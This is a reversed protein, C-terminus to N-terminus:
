SSMSFEKLQYEGAPLNNYIWQNNRRIPSYEKGSNLHLLQHRASSKLSIHFNPFRGTYTIKLKESEQLTTHDRNEIYQAVEDCTAHWIDAGRMIDYIRELSGLDTFVNPRQLHGKVKQTTFHEQISILRGKGYLYEIYGEMQVNRFQQFWPKAWQLKKKGTQLFTKFSEGSLNTPMDLIKKESGLYRFQNSPSKKNKMENGWAWWLFGLKQIISLAEENKEYGPFKGGQFRIGTHHEFKELNKSLWSLDKGTRYTFEQRYRGGENKGHHTGHFAFSFKPTLSHLFSLYEESFGRHQIDYGNNGPKQNSDRETIIFFTGRIEPYKALLTNEFYSFLSGSERMGFGHDTFPKVSGDQSINVPALDDIMLTAATQHDNHYPCLQFNDSNLSICKNQGFKTIRLVGRKLSKERQILMASIPNIM